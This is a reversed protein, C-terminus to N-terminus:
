KDNSCTEFDEEYLHRKDPRETTLHDPNFCFLNGCTTHVREKLESLGNMIMYMCKRVSM